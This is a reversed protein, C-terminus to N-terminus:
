MRQVEFSLMITIPKSGQMSHNPGDVCLDWKKLQKNCFNKVEAMHDFIVHQQSLDDVSFIYGVITGVPPEKEPFEKEELAELTISGLIKSSQGMRTYKQLSIQMVM